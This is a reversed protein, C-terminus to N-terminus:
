AGNKPTKEPTEESAVGDRERCCVPEGCDAENGPTYEKDWHIDSLHLVRITPSGAQFTRYDRRERTFERGEGQALTKWLEPHAASWARCRARTSVLTGSNGHLAGGGAGLFGSRSSVM